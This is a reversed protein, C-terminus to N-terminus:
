AVGIWKGYLVDAVKWLVIVNYGSTELTPASGGVWSVSFWTIAYGGSADIMLTISQGNTFSETPISIDTLVWTQITGLDPDIDPTTGVLTYIEEDLAISEPLKGLDIGEEDFLTKFGM